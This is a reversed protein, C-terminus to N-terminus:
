NRRLAPVEALAATAARCAEEVSPEQVWVPRLKRGKPGRGQWAAGGFADEIVLGTWGSVPHVFRLKDGKRTRHWGMAEAEPPLDIIEPDKALMAWDKGEPPARGDWPGGAKRM